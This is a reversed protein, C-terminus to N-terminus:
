FRIVKGSGSVTTNVVPNGKYYVTGSGSIKSNLEDNVHLKISGSGSIHTRATSAVVGLLDIRGSGSIDADAHKATGNLVLLEGSGSVSADINNTALQNITISGSGSVSLRVNAPKYPQVVKASGSGSLSLGTLSPASVTIRIDERSRLNVHDRVKIKLEGGTTYTEIERLINEQARVEVKFVSDQVYYLDGPVRFSIATFNSVTKNESVVPGHGIVKRCANLSFLVIAFLIAASIRKM